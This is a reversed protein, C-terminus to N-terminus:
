LVRGWPSGPSAPSGEFAHGEPLPRQVLPGYIPSDPAAEATAAALALTAHVQACALVAAAAQVADQGKERPLNGLTDISEAAMVALREAEAYHEPGNM